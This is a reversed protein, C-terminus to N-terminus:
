ADADEDDDGFSRTPLPVRGLASGTVVAGGVGIKASGTRIAAAVAEKRDDDDPAPYPDGFLDHWLQQARIEDDAAAIAESAADAASQLEDAIAGREEDSLEGDVYGDPVAPNTTPTLVAVAMDGFLREMLPAYELDGREELIRLVLAELHFSNLVKGRRRNWSKLMKIAPVIRGAWAANRASLAAAHEEPDSRLWGTDSKPETIRM